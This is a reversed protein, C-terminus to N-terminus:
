YKNHRKVKILKYL